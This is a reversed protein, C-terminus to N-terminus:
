QTLNFVHNFKNLVIMGFVFSYIISRNNWISIKFDKRPVSFFIKPRKYLYM